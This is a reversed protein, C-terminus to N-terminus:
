PPVTLQFALEDNADAEAPLRRSDFRLVVSNYRTGSM